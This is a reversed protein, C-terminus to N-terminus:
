RLLRCLQLQRFVERELPPLRAVSRPLRFRGDRHRRWDLCLRRVVARLWTAFSATGEARFKRIRRLDDRRLRECVFLFCDEIEDADREFLHVVQLVLPAHADLFERWLDDSGRAALAPLQSSFRSAEGM